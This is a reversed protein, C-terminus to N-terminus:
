LVEVLHTQLELLEQALTVSSWGDVLEVQSVGNDLVCGDVSREDGVALNNCAHLAQQMFVVLDTVRMEFPTALSTQSRESRTSDHQGVLVGHGSGFAAKGKLFSVLVIEEGEHRKRSLNTVADVSVSTVLAIDDLLSGGDSRGQKV